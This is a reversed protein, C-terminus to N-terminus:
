LAERVRDGHDAVSFPPLHSMECQTQLHSHRTAESASPRHLRCVEPYPCWLRPRPNPSGPQWARPGLALASGQCHPQRQERAQRM